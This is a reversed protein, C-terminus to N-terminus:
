GFVGGILRNGADYCYVLSAWNSSHIHALYQKAFHQRVLSSRRVYGASHGFTSRKSKKTLINPM